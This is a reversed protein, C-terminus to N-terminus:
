ADETCARLVEEISIGDEHFASATQPDNVVQFAFARRAERNSEPDDPDQSSRIEIGNRGRRVVVGPGGSSGQQQGLSGLNEINRINGSLMEQLTEMSLGGSGDQSSVMAPNSCLMERLAANMGEESGGIRLHATRHRVRNFMKDISYIRIQGSFMDGIWFKKDPGFAICAPDGTHDDDSGLLMGLLKAKPGLVHISSSSFDHVFITGDQDCCISTPTFEDPRETESPRSRTPFTIGKKYSECTMERGLLYVMNREEDAVCIQRTLANYEISNIRKFTSRENIGRIDALNRDSDYIMVYSVGDSSASVDLAGIVLGNEEYNCLSTPYYAGTDILLESGTSNCKLISAVDKCIALLGDKENWCIDLTKGRGVTRKDEIHGSLNFKFVDSGEDLLIWASYASVPIIKTVRTAGPATFGDQLDGCYCSRVLGNLLHQITGRMAPDDPYIASADVIDTDHCKNNTDNDDSKGHNEFCTKCLCFSCSACELLPVHSRYDCSDCIYENCSSVFFNTLLSDVTKERPLTTVQRCVPCPINQANKASSNVKKLCVSCFTHRCVLLKPTRYVNMCIACEETVLGTGDGPIIDEM